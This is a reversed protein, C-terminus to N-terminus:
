QAYEAVSANQHNILSTSIELLIKNLVEVVSKSLSIDTNLKTLAILIGKKSSETTLKSKLEQLYDLLLQPQFYSSYNSLLQSTCQIVAKRADAKYTNNRLQTYIVKILEDIIPSKNGFKLQRGELLNDISKLASLSVDSNIDLSDIMLKIYYELKIGEIEKIFLYSFAELINARVEHVKNKKLERELLPLLIALVAKDECITAAFSKCVAVLLRSCELVSKADVSNKSTLENIKKILHDLFENASDKFKTRARRFPYLVINEIDMKKTNEEVTMSNVLKNFTDFTADRVELSTEMLRNYLKTIGIFEDALYNDL